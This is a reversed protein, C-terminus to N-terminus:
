PTIIDFDGTTTFTDNVGYQFTRLVFTGKVEHLSYDTVTVYSSTSDTINYYSNERNNFGQITGTGYNFPYQHASVGNGIKYVGTSFGPDLKKADITVACKSNYLNIRLERVAIETDGDYVTSINNSTWMGNQTDESSNNYITGNFTFNFASYKQTHITTSTHTQKVCAPFLLVTGLLISLLLNRM